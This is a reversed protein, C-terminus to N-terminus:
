VGGVSDLTIRWDLGLLFYERQTLVSYQSLFYVVNLDDGIRGSFSLPKLDMFNSLRFHRSPVVAIQLYTPVPKVQVALVPIRLPVAEAPVAATTPIQPVLYQGGATQRFILEM